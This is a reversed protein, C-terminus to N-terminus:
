DKSTKVLIVDPCKVIKGGSKCQVSASLEVVTDRSVLDGIKVRHDSAVAKMSKGEAFTASSGCFFAFACLVVACITVLKKEFNM